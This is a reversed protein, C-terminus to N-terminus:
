TWVVLYDPSCQFTLRYEVTGGRPIFLSAQMSPSRPPLLNFRSQVSFLAEKKKKKKRITLSHTLRKREVGYHPCDVTYM